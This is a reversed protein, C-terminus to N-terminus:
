KLCEVLNTCINHELNNINFKSKFINLYINNNIMGYIYVLELSM